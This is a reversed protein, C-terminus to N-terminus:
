EPTTNGSGTEGAIVVVQHDRIVEAIEDKRQSVPLEAPYTIPPLAARRAARAAALAQARESQTASRGGRSGSRRARAGALGASSPTVSNSEM